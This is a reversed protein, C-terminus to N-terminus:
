DAAKQFCCECQSAPFFFRGTKLDPMQVAVGAVDFKGSSSDAFGVAEIKLFYTGSTIKEFVYNGSKDSINIKVLSSDKARLLSVTTAEIGKDDLTKVTGTIKESQQAHAGNYFFSSLILTFLFLTQRM